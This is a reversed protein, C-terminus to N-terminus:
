VPEQLLPSLEGGHYIFLQHLARTMAVYLLKVDLENARYTERDADALLVVDFELGKALYAPVIVVGGRYEAERGTIVPADFGTEQLRDHWTQSARATKGIVAITGFGRRKAEHIRVGMDRAAAAPNPEGIICVAEGHRLVPVAKVLDPQDLHALVQNAASMIEITTRYSRELTLCESGCDGFVGRRIEAWDRAGRYSHIGQALDGLITFSSDRIIKRLAFLQFVSFDQAEDIVLHRVRIKEDLGYLRYKLYLLPALDEIEVTGAALNALSYDATYDRLDGPIEGEALRKFHTPDALFERYYELVGHRPVRRLYERVGGSALEELRRALDEKRGITQLIFLRRVESEEMAEKIQRVKTNCEEQLGQVIEAVRERTRKALYKGILELRKFSPWGAYDSHFLGRVEDATVFAWRDFQLDGRPLLTEELGQIHHELIDRYALSSKFVAAERLRRHCEEEAATRGGELFLLLKENAERIKLRAGIVEMAFDEFTTQKVREVGLEPLVESIYNLFLRNPAVIMFSEPAFAEGYNYILYAIRHLAITTKGSGAVGQVILPTEMPARIIRNQETQITSVIEKLRNKANGGLCRGLFEDTTVLDLDFIERLEGDAISYQRKLSLEGAIEGAPCRYSTRGLRGEYYLNAVAARWDVIVLGQDEERLLCMKGLYLKEVEVAGDERFDARAFYPRSKATHLNRLRLALGSQINSKVILDIYAQSNEDTCARDLRRIEQDLDNKQRLTSELSRAVYALTYTLREREEPYAPHDVAPM